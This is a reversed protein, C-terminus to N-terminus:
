IFCEERMEFYEFSIKGHIKPLLWQDKYVNLNLIQYLHVMIMCYNIVFLVHEHNFSIKLHVVMCIDANM